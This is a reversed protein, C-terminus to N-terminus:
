GNKEVFIKNIKEQKKKIWKKRCFNYQNKGTKKKDM